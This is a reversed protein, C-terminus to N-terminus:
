NEQNSSHMENENYNLLELIEKETRNQLFLDRVFSSFEDMFILSDSNYLSKLDSEILYDFTMKKNIMKKHFGM